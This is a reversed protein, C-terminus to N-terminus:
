FYNFGIKSTTSENSDSSSTMTTEKTTTIKTTSLTTSTTTPVKSGESAKYNCADGRCFTRHGLITDSDQYADYKIDVAGNLDFALFLKKKNVKLNMRLLFVQVVVSLMISEEM